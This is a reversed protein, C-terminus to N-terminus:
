FPNGMRACQLTLSVSLVCAGTTDAAAPTAANTLTTVSVTVDDSGDTAQTIATIRADFATAPTGHLRADRNLTAHVKLASTGKIVFNYTGVGTKTCTVNEGRTATVAAAASLDAEMEIEWKNPNQNRATTNPM